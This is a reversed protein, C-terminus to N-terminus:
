EIVEINKKYKSKDFVFTNDPINAASNINNLTFDITNNSKDVVRARTIMKKTKDVFINVQKYNKRKDNPLLQIENSNGTTSVLKYAYDKDYFNTLLTQPTLSNDSANVPTVTVEDNGNYNWTKVGDSFIEASGQKIYYKNGKVLIKGAVRNNIKGTGSKSVLNFGANIGKFTKLRTSVDDLIKKANPDNQAKASCVVTVLMIVLYYIKKM